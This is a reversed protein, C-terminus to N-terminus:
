KSLEEYAKKNKLLMKNSSDKYTKSQEIKKFEISPVITRGKLSAFLEVRKKALKYIDKYHMNDVMGDNLAKLVIEDAQKIEDLQNINLVERINKFKQEILFLAKNEMTSLTIYYKSANNSGQNTAYQIFQKITDTEKLRSVKGKARTELYEQNAKQTSLDLLIKRMRFFEKTISEKFNLVLDNENKKVRLMMILFTLHQENLYFITSSKGHRQSMQFTGVNGFKEFSKWYEKILSIISKHTRKLERAVILSTTLPENKVLVVLDNSM